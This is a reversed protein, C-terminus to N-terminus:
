ARNLPFPIVDEISDVGLEIMALRDVGLATGACSPLGHRMAELLRSQEPLPSQGDAVRLENAARNRRLLEEPDLLEHYGNVVEVGDIYLEFREAVPPQDGRVKALAAQSAPYDYLILPRERGLHPEVQTALIVNLWEDRFGAEPTKVSEELEVGAANALYPARKRALLSSASM